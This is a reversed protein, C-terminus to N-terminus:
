LVVELYGKVQTERDRVRGLWWDWYGRMKLYIEHAPHDEPYVALPYSDVDWSAKTRPGDLLSKLLPLRTVPLTDTTPGDLITVVDIDGPELKGTVYSGDIWQAQVSVLSSLAERHQLWRDFIVPRRKSSPFADVFAERFEAVTVRCRGPPLFGEADLM